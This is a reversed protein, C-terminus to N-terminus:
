INKLTLNVSYTTNGRLESTIATPSTTTTKTGAVDSAVSVKHYKVTVTLNLTNSTPILYLYTKRDITCLANQDDTKLGDPQWSYPLGKIYRVEPAIYGYCSANNIDNDILITRDTDNNGGDKDYTWDSWVPYYKTNAGSSETTQEYLHLKGTKAMRGKLTIEEILVKTGAAPATELKVNIELRALAHHMDINLRGGSPISAPQTYLYWLLDVCEEPKECRRYDITPVSSNDSVGIIGTGNADIGTETVYPAYASIYFNSLDTPWYKVPSYSWYGYLPDDLDGVYTFSVNQNYMMDPTKAASISAFVGFGTTRLDETHMLGTHGARTTEDTQKSCEFSIAVPKESTGETTVDNQSCGWLLLGVTIITGYLIERAYM